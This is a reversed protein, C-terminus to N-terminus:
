LWLVWEWSPSSCKGDLNSIETLTKIMFEDAPRRFDIDRSLQLDVTGSIAKYRSAYDWHRQAKAGMDMFVHVAGLVTALASLPVIIFKANPDDWLGAIAGTIITTVPGPLGFVLHKLRASYGADNHEKSLKECLEGWQMIKCHLSEHWREEGRHDHNNHHDLVESNM